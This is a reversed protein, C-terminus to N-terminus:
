LGRGPTTTSFSKKQLSEKMADLDTDSGASELESLYQIIERYGHSKMGPDHVTYGLRLLEQVEEIWGGELMVETREAIRRKLDDGSREVGFILLDYMCRKNLQTDHQSLRDQAWVFPEFWSVLGETVGRSREPHCRGRPRLEGRASVAKSKPARLIEYIEVARVIRPKNNQHVSAAAEPDIKQLRAYLRKGGDRDYEDMLRQHLEPDAPPALTLGDTIAAIYLM